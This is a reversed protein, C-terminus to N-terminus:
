QLPDALGRGYLSCSRFLQLNARLAWVLSWVGTGWVFRARVAAPTPKLPMRGHPVKGLEVHHQGHQASSAAWLANRVPVMQEAWRAAERVTNRSVM